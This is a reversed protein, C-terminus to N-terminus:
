TAPSLHLLYTEPLPQSPPILIALQPYLGTEQDQKLPKQEQLQM